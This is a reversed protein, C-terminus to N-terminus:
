TRPLRRLDLTRPYERDANSSNIARDLAAVDVRGPTHGNADFRSTRRADAENANVPVRHYSRGGPHVVHYTCGGLSRGSWRDILDFVLPAHVLYGSVFRAALGLGRLIQTLLWVSDRCSGFGKELTEEATQVGPEFRTTYAVARQVRQNVGVLFDVTAEGGAPVEVQALWQRLLRGPEGTPLYPALDRALAPEYRFPYREAAPDLFFDFPNIVTMEAVVDVTISLMRAPTPFVLRALHNGFPDQQWNIFHGEPEVRLSYALIPTRCGPAPRLRVVRPSLRVWRHFRYVTRHELAVQVAM